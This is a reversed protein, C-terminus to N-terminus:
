AQDLWSVAVAAPRHAATPFAGQGGPANWHGVPGPPSRRRPLLEAKSGLHDSEMAAAVCCRASTGTTLFALFGITRAGDDLEAREDEYLRAVEDIPVQSEQAPVQTNLDFPNATTFGQALAVLLRVTLVGSQLARKGAKGDARSISEAPLFLPESSAFVVRGVTLPGFGEVQRQDRCCGVVGIATAAIGGVSM